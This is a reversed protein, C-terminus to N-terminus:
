RRSTSSAQGLVVRADLAVAGSPTALLPNIELESLEPHEAGVRSVLSVADALADLDVPRRGRVGRLLAAGRLALLM